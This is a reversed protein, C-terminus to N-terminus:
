RAVSLDHLAAELNQAAAEENAALLRATAEAQSACRLLGTDFLLENM